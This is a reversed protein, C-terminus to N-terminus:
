PWLQKKHIWIASWWVNSTMFKFINIYLMESFKDYKAENQYGYNFFSENWLVQCKKIEKQQEKNTTTWFASGNTDQLIQQHYSYPLLILM